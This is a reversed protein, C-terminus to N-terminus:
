GLIIIIIIFATHNKRCLRRPNIERYSQAEGEARKKQNPHVVRTNRRRGEKRAIEGGRTVFLSVYKKGCEKKIKGLCIRPRRWGNWATFFFLFCFVFFGFFFAVKNNHSLLSLFDIISSALVIAGTTEILFFKM